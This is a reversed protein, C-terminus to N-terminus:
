IIADPLWRCREEDAIAAIMDVLAAIGALVERVGKPM